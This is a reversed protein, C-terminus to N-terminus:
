THTDDPMRSPKGIIIPIFLIAMFPIVVAINEWIRRLVVSWKSNTLNHILLWFLAGLAISIWFMFSTLYSYYFSEKDKLAFPISLLLGVIGIALLIQFIRKSDGIKFNEKDWKM